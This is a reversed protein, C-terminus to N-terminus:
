KQDDQYVDMGEWGVNDADEAALVALEEETWPSDDYRLTELREFVDARLVVVDTGAETLRLSAGSRVTELQEKTLQM